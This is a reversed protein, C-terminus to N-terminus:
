WYGVCWNCLLRDCPGVVLRVFLGSIWAGCGRVGIFVFASLRVASTKKKKSYNKSHSDFNKRKKQRTGFWLIPEGRMSTTLSLFFFLFFASPSDSCLGGSFVVDRGPLSALVFFLACVCGM